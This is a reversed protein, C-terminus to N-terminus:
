RFFSKGGRLGPFAARWDTLILRGGPLGRLMYFKGNHDILLKDDDGLLEDSRVVRRCSLASPTENRLRQPLDTLAKRAGEKNLSGM